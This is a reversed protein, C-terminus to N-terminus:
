CVKDASKERGEIRESEIRGGKEEGCLRLLIRIDGKGGCKSRTERWESRM